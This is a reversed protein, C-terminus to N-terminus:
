PRGQSRETVVALLWEPKLRAAQAAESTLSKLEADSLVDCGADAAAVLPAGLPQPPPLLFAPLIFFADAQAQAQKRVATRQQEISAQMQAGVKAQPREQGLLAM